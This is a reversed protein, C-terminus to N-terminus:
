ATALELGRAVALALYISDYLSLRSRSALQYADDLLPGTPELEDFLEAARATLAAGAEAAIEGSRVKKVAVSTLEVLVLDPAVLVLGSGALRRAAPSGLETLFCKAAVSADLVISVPM